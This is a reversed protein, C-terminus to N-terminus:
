GYSLSISLVIIMNWEQPYVINISRSDETSKESEVTIKEDSVWLVGKLYQCPNNNNGNCLHNCQPQPITFEWPKTPLSVGGGLGSYNRRLLLSMGTGSHPCIPSHPCRDTINRRHTLLFPATLLQVWSKGPNVPFENINAKTPHINWTITYNVSFAKVLRDYITVPPGPTTPLSLHVLLPALIWLQITPVITHVGYTRVESPRWM